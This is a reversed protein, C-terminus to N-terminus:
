LILMDLTFTKTYQILTYLITQTESLAIWCSNASSSIALVTWALKRAARMRLESDGNRSRDDMRALTNVRSNSSLTWDLQFIRLRDLRRRDMKNADSTCSRAGSTNAQVWLPSCWARPWSIYRQCFQNGYSLWVTEFEVLITLMNATMVRWASIQLINCLDPFLFAFGVILEIHSWAYFVIQLFTKHFIISKCCFLLCLIQM